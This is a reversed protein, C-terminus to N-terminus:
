RAWISMPSYSGKSVGGHQGSHRPELKRRGPMGKGVMELALGVWEINLESVAMEVWSEGEELHCHRSRLRM